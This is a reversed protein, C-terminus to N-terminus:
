REIGLLRPHSGQRRGHLYAVGGWQRGVSVGAVIYRHMVLIASHYRLGKKIVADLM